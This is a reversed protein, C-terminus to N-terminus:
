YARKDVSARSRSAQNKRYYLNKIVLFRKMHILASDGDVLYGITRIFKGSTKIQEPSNFEWELHAYGDLYHQWDTHCPIHM